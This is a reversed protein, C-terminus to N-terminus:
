NKLSAMNAKCLLPIKTSNYSSLFGAKIRWDFCPPVVRPRHGNRCDKIGSHLRSRMPATVMWFTTAAIVALPRCLSQIASNLALYPTHNCFTAAVSLLRIKISTLAGSQQATQPCATEYGRQLIKDRLEWWNFSESLSGAPRSWRKCLFSNM